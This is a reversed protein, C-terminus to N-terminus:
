ILRNIIKYNPESNEGFKIYNKVYMNYSKISIKNKNIDIQDLSYDDINILKGGILRRLFIRYKMEAPNKDKVSNTYIFFIPKKFLLAYSLSTSAFTVVFKCNKVLELSRDYYAKRYGLYSLYKEKKSKPHLAIVIKTKNTKELDKFFSDLSSYYKEVLDVMKTKWFLDDNPFKPGPAALFVGYNSDKIIKKINKIRLYRSYDNTNGNVINIKSKKFMDLYKKGATLIFDPKLNIFLNLFNGFFFKKILIKSNELVYKTRLFFSRIKYFYNEYINFINKELSYIPLGPNFIDIRTIKYKKLFLLINISLFNDKILFNIVSIKKNKDKKNLIYNKWNNISNFSIINNKKALNKNYSNKFNPYLINHFHHIEVQFYRQLQIIEYREIDFKRINFPYLIILLRRDM